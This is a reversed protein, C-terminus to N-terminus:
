FALIRLTYEKGGQLWFPASSSFGIVDEVAEIEGNHVRLIECKGMCDFSIATAYGDNESLLVGGKPFETFNRPQYSFQCEVVAKQPLDIALNSAQIHTKPPTFVDTM